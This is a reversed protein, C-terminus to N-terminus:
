HFDEVVTQLNREVNDQLHFFKGLNVKWTMLREEFQETIPVTLIPNLCAFLIMKLSNEHTPSEPPDPVRSLTPQNLSWLRIVPMFWPDTFLQEVFLGKVSTKLKRRSTGM